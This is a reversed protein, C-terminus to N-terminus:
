KIEEFMRIEDPIYNEDQYQELFRICDRRNGKYLLTLTDAYFGFDPNNESILTIAGNNDNIFLHYKKM